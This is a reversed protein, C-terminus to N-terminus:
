HFTYLIAAGLAAGVGISTELVKIGARTGTADPIYLIDNAMLPLDPAKRDMINKLSIPIETRGGGVLILV